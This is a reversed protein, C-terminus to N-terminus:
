CSAQSSLPLNYENDPMYQNQKITSKNNSTRMNNSTLMNYKNNYILMNYLANSINEKNEKYEM